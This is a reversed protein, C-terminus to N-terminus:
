EGDAKEKKEEQIFGGQMVYEMGQGYGIQIDNMRRDVYEGNSWESKIIEQEEKLLKFVKQTLESHKWVGFEDWTM